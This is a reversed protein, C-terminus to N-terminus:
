VAHSNLIETVGLAVFTGREGAQGEVDGFSGWAGDAHRITHWLHGDSTAGCVHLEGAVEAVALAVFTGREGAQGEVDGFSGWAGDAHRITHWLHGDSTAGCVHLEGAM